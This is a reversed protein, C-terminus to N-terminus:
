EYQINIEGADFTDTGGVTTIRVRDLTASLSKRGTTVATFPVSTEGLTGEATWTNNTADMLCLTIAGNRAYAAGGMYNVFGTSDTTANQNAAAVFTSTSLYGTAEIGGSDGLQILLNSSGNTSVDNFMITIKQTGSPISTFDISTGSTSAQKTALTLETESKADLQTQIASTVGNLYSLETASVTAPWTPLNADYAQVSSGIDSSTLTNPDVVKIQFVTGDYIAEIVENAAIDGAALDTTNGNKKITKATLGNVALTSAGTNANAAIFKFKQGAAYATIAPSLGIAYADAAGTDTAYVFSGDQVQGTASYHNRASSNGVGTHKQSGMPLDATPTNQGDKTLAKNIGDVFTNHETDMKPANIKVGADRDATWNYNRSFTGNGDWGAM